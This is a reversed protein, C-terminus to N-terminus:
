TEAESASTSDSGGAAETGPRGRRARWLSWVDSTIYRSAFYAAPLYFFGDDGWRRGWSNQCIFEPGDDGTRYGVAVAAHGFLVREDTAPAPVRGRDRRAKVFGELVSFGFIVPQKREALTYQVETVQLNDPHEGPRPVRAYAVRGQLRTYDYVWAPPRRCLTEPLYPWLKEECVGLRNLVRLSSRIAVTSNCTEDHEELRENWYLFMRSPRLAEAGDLDLYRIAAALANATCSRFRGQQYVPVDVLDRLDVDTPLTRRSAEIEHRHDRPDPPDAHWGTPPIRNQPGGYEPGGYEPGGYEPGGYEPGGYEPGGYQPGGYQPGGYQPGGYQPGGYQPGGYEPGGYEPGGYGSGCCGRSSNVFTARASRCCACDSDCVVIRV